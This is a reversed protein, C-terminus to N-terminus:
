QSNFDPSIPNVAAKKKLRLAFPTIDQLISQQYNEAYHCYKLVHQKLLFVQNYPM